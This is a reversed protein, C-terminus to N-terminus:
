SGSGEEMFGANFGGELTAQIDVLALLSARLSSSWAHYWLSPHPSCGVAGPTGVQSPLAPFM